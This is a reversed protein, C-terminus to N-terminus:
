KGWRIENTKAAIIFIVLLTTIVSSVNFDYLLYTFGVVYLCLYLYKHEKAKKREPTMTLGFRAADVDKFIQEYLTM